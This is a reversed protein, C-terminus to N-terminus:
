LRESGVIYMGAVKGAHKSQGGQGLTILENSALSSAIGLGVATGCFRLATQRPYLRALLNTKM